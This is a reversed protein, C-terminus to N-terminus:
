ALFINIHNNYLACILALSRFDDNHLLLEQDNFSINIAYPIFIDFFNLTM